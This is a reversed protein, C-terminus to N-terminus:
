SQKNNDRRHTSGSSRSLFFNLLLCNATFDDVKSLWSVGEKLWESHFACYRKALKVKKKPPTLALM